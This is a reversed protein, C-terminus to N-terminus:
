QSMNSLIYERPPRITVAEKAHRSYERELVRKLVKDEEDESRDDGRARQELKEHNLMLREIRRRIEDPDANPVHGNRAMREHKSTSGTSRRSGSSGRSSHSSAVSVARQNGTWSYQRTSQSPPIRPRHRTSSTSQTIRHSSQNGFRSAIQADYTVPTDASLASGPSQGSSILSSTFLDHQTDVMGFPNSSSRSIHHPRSSPGAEAEGVGEFEGAGEEESRVNQHPGSGTLDEYDEDDDLVEVPNSASGGNEYAGGETETPDRGHAAHQSDLTLNELMALTGGHNRQPVFSESHSVPNGKLQKM